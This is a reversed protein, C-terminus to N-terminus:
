IQYGNKKGGTGRGQHLLQNTMVIVEYHARHRRLDGADRDNAWSNTWVCILSFRLAGRRLGKHPSDVPSRRIVRVFPWYRPFHKWKIVDDHKRPEAQGGKGYQFSCLVNNKAEIRLKPSDTLTNPLVVRTVRTLKVSMCLMLLGAKCASSTTVLPVQKILSVGSM